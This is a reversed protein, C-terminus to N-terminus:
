PSGKDWADRVRAMSRAIVASIFTEVDNHTPDDPPSGPDTPPPSGPDHDVFGSTPTYGWMKAAFHQAAYEKADDATAFGAM